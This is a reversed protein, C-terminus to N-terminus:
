WSWANWALVDVISAWTCRDSYLGATFRTTNWRGSACGICFGVGPRLDRLHAGQIRFLKQELVGVCPEDLLSQALKWNPESFNQDQAFQFVKGVFLDGVDAHARDDDVTCM